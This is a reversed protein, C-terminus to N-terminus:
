GRFFASLAFFGSRLSFSCGSPSPGRDSMVYKKIQFKYSGFNILIGHENRSSRLYGLLQATHEYALIKCAKLEIISRDDIM